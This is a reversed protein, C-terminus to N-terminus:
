AKVLFRAPSNSSRLLSLGAVINPFNVKNVCVTALRPFRMCQQSDHLVHRSHGCGTASAALGYQQHVFDQM